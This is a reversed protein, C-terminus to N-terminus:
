VDLKTISNSVLLGAESQLDTPPCVSAFRHLVM